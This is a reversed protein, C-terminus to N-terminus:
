FYSSEGSALRMYVDRILALDSAYARESTLLELLAHQRKTIAPAPTLPATTLDEESCQQGPMASRDESLGLRNDTRPRSKTPLSLPLTSPPLPLEKDKPFRTSQILTHASEMTPTHGANATDAGVSDTYAAVPGTYSTYLATPLTDGVLHETERERDFEDEFEDVVGLVSHLDPTSGLAELLQSLSSFSHTRLVPVMESEPALQLMPLMKPLQHRTAPPATIPHSSGLTLGITPELQSQQLDLGKCERSRRRAEEAIMSHNRGPRLASRPPLVPLTTTSSEELRHPQLQGQTSPQQLQQNNIYGHGNRGSAELSGSDLHEAESSAIDTM